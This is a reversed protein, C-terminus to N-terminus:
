KKKSENWEKKSLLPPFCKNKEECGDPQYILSNVPCGCYCEMKSFCEPSKLQVLKLREIAQEKIHRPPFRKNWIARIYNLTNHFSLEKVSEYSKRNKLWKVVSM